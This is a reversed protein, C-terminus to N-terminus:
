LQEFPTVAMQAAATEFAERLKEPDDSASIYMGGVTENRPQEGVMLKMKRVDSGDLGNGAGIILPTVNPNAQLSRLVTEENGARSHQDSGDTLALIYMSFGPHLRGFASLNEVSEVMSDFFATGGSAVTSQINARVSAAIDRKLGMHNRTHVNNNFEVFSVYDDGHIHDDLIMLMNQVCRALRSREPSEGVQMSGSTDLMLVVAKPTAKTPGGVAWPAALANINLFRQYTRRPDLRPKPHPLTDYQQSDIFNLHWDRADGIVAQVQPNPQTLTRDLADAIVHIDFLAAAGQTDDNAARVQDSPHVGCWLTMDVLKRLLAVDSITDTKCLVHLCYSPDGELFSCAIAAWSYATVPDMVRKPELHLQMSRLLQHAIALAQPCQESVSSERGECTLYSM